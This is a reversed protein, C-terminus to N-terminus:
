DKFKINIKKNEGEGTIDINEIQNPLKDNTYCLWAIPYKVRYRIMLWIIKVQETIEDGSAQIAVGAWSLIVLGLMLCFEQFYFKYGICSIIFLILSLACGILYLILLCTM